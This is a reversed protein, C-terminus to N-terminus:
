KFLVRGLRLLTAGEEVAVEFDQSMGMSCHKLGLKDAMKRLNRYYPRALEADENLPAMCMLGQMNVGALQKVKNYVLTVKSVGLGQKQEEGSMNVQLCIPMVKDIKLCEKSIKQALKLSDVVHIMSFIKVAVKVKNSQLPGIMHYRFRDGWREYKDQAVQVRNEAIDIIKTNELFSIEDVSHYKTVVIIRADGTRDQLSKLNQEFSNM